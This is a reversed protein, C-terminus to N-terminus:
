LFVNYFNLSESSPGWSNDWNRLGTNFLNFVKCNIEQNRRGCVFLSIWSVPGLFRTKIANSKAQWNHLWFKKKLLSSIREVGFTNIKNKNLHPLWGKIQQILLRLNTLSQLIMFSKFGDWFLRMQDTWQQTQSM